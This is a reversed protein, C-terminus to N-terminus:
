PSQFRKEAWWVLSASTQAAGFLHSERCSLTNGHKAFYDVVAKRSFSTALHHDRYSHASSRNNADSDSCAADTTETDATNNLDSVNTELCLSIRWFRCSVGSIYM